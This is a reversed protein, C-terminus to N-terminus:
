EEQLKVLQKVRNEVVVLKLIFEYEQKEYEDILGVVIM